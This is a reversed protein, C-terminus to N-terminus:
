PRAIRVLGGDNFEAELKFGDLLSTGLLPRGGMALVEVKYEVGEWIIAATYADVLFSTGNALTAPMQYRFPLKLAAVASTPLTLFGVFGTDVMFEIDLNPLPSLYFTVPVLVRGGEVHGETM